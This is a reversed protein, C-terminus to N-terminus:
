DSKKEEENTIGGTKNEELIKENDLIQINKEITKSKNAGTTVVCRITYNGVNLDKTNNVVQDNAYCITTIGSKGNFNVKSPLDYSNGVIFSIPLDELSIEPENNDIKTIQYTSSSITENNLTSRAYITTLGTINITGTYKFWNEADFSYENEYNGTPYTINVNKSTTWIDDNSVVIKPAEVIIEPDPTDPKTEVVVPGIEYLMCWYHRSQPYGKFSLRTTKAPVKYTGFATYTALKTNGAYFIITPAVGNSGRNGVLSIQQGILESSIDIYKVDETAIYTSNKNDYAASTMADAPLVSTYTSIDSSTGDKDISKYLVTKNLQLKIEGPYDEWTVGNDLSYLKKVSTQFYEASVTSYGKEIGYKTIKPYIKNIKLVPANLIKLERLRCWYHDSDLHGVFSMKTTGEPITYTGFVTYSILVTKGSYFKIAPAVGNSGRDGIISIQQGALESSIDIYKIDPTAIYTSNNNDYAIDTMADTPLVSTYKSVSSSVGDKDISKFSVVKGLSLKIEGSYNEWTLGNDLSYLKKVATQFYKASVISYGKEVGYETMKPYIKNIGLVPANLLKIETLFCWYYRSKPSGVFSMRTAGEPITYTGFATYSAIVKKDSYFKIQPAVGNSGRDGKIAIQQGIVESSIDIYKIDETGIYTSEDNDYTEIPLADTPMVISKSASVTLGSEKKVSKAKVKKNTIEFKGTYLKWTTGGDLSYYNDIDDRDDFDITAINDYRIGYETIIPYGSKANIVPTKPVDLDLVYVIESVEQSNGAQDIGKAFITLTGDSNAFQYVDTSNIVIKDTYTTYEGTNGIKYQKVVSDGYNIEIEAKASYSKTLVNIDIDPATQDINNVEITKIVYNGAKDNAYITYIGNEKVKFTGKNDIFDGNDEFYEVSKSGKAYGVENVKLNDTAEIQITLQRTPTKFDAKAIINPDIKDINTIKKSSIESEEETSTIGKAYIITNNDTITIPNIYKMWESERGKNDIIKYYKDKIRKDYNIQVDVNKTPETTSLTFTAKEPIYPDWSMYIDGILENMPQEIIYYHDTFTIIRNNDDKVKIVPNDEKGMIEDKYENKIFLIGNSNYKKWVGDKQYKYKRTSEISNIPYNLKLIIYSGKDIVVVRPPAVINTIKKTSTSVEGAVNENYAYIDTNESVKFPETYDLLEGNGIQYKKKIANKDYDITVLVSETAKDTPDIEINPEMIGDTLFDIKKTASGSGNNSTEYARVLTNKEVQFPETYKKWEGNGLKYYKETAKKDYNITVITSSYLRDSKEPVADISLMLHEKNLPPNNGINTIDIYEIKEGIDNTGKAYLRTNQTITLPEVYTQYIVGDFSYELKNCDDGIITVTMNETKEFLSPTTKILVYPKEYQKINNIYKSSIDSEKGDSERIYKAHITKNETIEIPETYKQWSGNDIKVYIIRAAEQPVISVKTSLAVSEPDLNILPGSLYTSPKKPKKDIKKNIYTSAYGYASNEGIAEAEILTNVGVIFEGTYDKWSGNNIRYRKSTANEDYDINVNTTSNIDLTTTNPNISVNLITENEGIRLIDYKYNKYEVANGTSYDYEIKIARAEIM